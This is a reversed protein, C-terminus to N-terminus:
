LDAEPDRCDYNREVQLNLWTRIWGLGGGLVASSLSRHLAPLEAVLGGNRLVPKV